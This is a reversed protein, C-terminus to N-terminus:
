TVYIAFIPHLPGYHTLPYGKDTTVSIVILSSFSFFCLLASAPLFMWTRLPWMRQFRNPTHEIFYLVSVPIFSASAFAIRLGWTNANPSFHAIALAITWLSITAAM